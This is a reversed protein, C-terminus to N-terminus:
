EKPPPAAAEGTRNELYWRNNVKKFYLARDKVDKLTATATDGAVQFEAARAFRRLDKVHQPEGAVQQGIQGVLTRFNARTGLDKIRGQLEAGRLTTGGASNVRQDGAGREFYEQNTALRGDVYEPDLLHAALYDFRERGIAGLVAALAQQPTDQHYLDPNYLVDYRPPIEQPLQAAAASALVLGFAMTLFPRM